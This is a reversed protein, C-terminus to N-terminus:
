APPLSVHEMEFAWLEGESLDANLGQEPVCQGMESHCDGSFSAPQLKHHSSLPAPPWQEGSTLQLHPSLGSAKKNNYSESAKVGVSLLGCPAIHLASLICDQNRIERSVESNNEGAREM